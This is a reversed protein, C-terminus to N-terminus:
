KKLKTSKGIFWYMLMGILPLFIIIITWVLKDISEEFKSNILNILTLVLLLIYLALLGIPILHILYTRLQESISSPRSTRSVTPSSQQEAKISSIIFNITQESVSKIYFVKQQSGAYLFVKKTNEVEYNEIKIKDIKYTKIIRNNFESISIEELSNSSCNIFSFSLTVTILLLIIKKM